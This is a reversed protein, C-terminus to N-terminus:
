EEPLLQLESFNVSKYQNFSLFVPDADEGLPMGFADLNVKINQGYIESTSQVTGGADLNKAMYGECLPKAKFPEEGEDAKILIRYTVKFFYGGNIQERTTQPAYLFCTGPEFGMFEDANIRNKFRNMKSIFAAIGAPTDPYPEYRSFEVIPYSNPIEIQIREGNPNVVPEDTEADKLLDETVEQSSISLETPWTLPDDDKRDLYMVESDFQCEVEWLITLRGNFHVTHAEKPTRSKCRCGDGKWDELLRPLEPTTLVHTWTESLDDAVIEFVVSYKRKRKKFASDRTESGSFSGDKIGIITGM